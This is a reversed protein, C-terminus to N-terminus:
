KRTVEATWNLVVNFVDLGAADQPVNVLFRQGDAAAVYRNRVPDGGTMSVEFLRAPTGAQFAAGADITVAMLTTGRNARFFLERGDGRWQPGGGGGNSIQWKGGPGPFARVYVEPVGSEMSTYALWRGDPALQGQSENFPTGLVERADGGGEANCTWLDANGQPYATLVLTRADGSWDSPGTNQNTGYVPSEVGTGDAPQRRVSYAGSADSGFAIDRGDPSWTPWIENGDGFTLRSSVGRKLDRVWLDQTGAKGDVLGYALRTGDPSLDLDRYAGAAGERGLRKGTRDMWVLESRETSGGRMTVLVGNDSVSFNAQSNNRVLVREAVPFPDSKWKWSGLDLRRAMLTGEIAYLVLDPAAFEVRSDVTGLTVAETSGIEGAKLTWNGDAASGFALYLYHKGDPLFWPWAHQSEGAKRDLVTAPSAVGGNASVQRLSDGAAGDFMIIDGTSWAGDAASKTECILQPPGGAVAIKKLQNGDFYALYRSDPSWFPRGADETGPLPNAQLAGMPRLWIMTRGLTDAALYALQRGNPSIRPWNMTRAGAPPDLTFRTVEPAPERRTLGMTTTGIAALAFVAAVLWPLRERHRRRVMVPASAGAQSGGEAVWRLQLKVDHATQIREEPDKALCSKVVRDLGPSALPAASAVSVPETHMIAGILSAQSQGDFARKGTAMEYMVCGLAWLDSRADAEKGELQEPSMYLFTGVLVGQATLSRSMTMASALDGPAADPATARALGFDMLKAGSRTLMINGPKLDRHIIGRRHALDLAEAVQIALRLLEEAPLPGKALRATLTEGEILEMVLYDHGGDHGLDFLTCIHPHNLGSIAKAERDLRARAVDTEALHQPLVKVAVDRGLRTDRARYVEGMGGAGLLSIVEYPGLRTGAALAM